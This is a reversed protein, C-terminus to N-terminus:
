LNFIYNKDQNLPKTWFYGHVNFNNLLESTIYDNMKEFNGGKCEHKLDFFSLECNIGIKYKQNARIYHNKM